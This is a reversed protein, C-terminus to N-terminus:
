LLVMLVFTHWPLGKTNIVSGISIYELV